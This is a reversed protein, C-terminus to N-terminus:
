QGPALLVRFGVYYDRVDPSSGIRYASRCSSGGNRWGGGRVLRSSGMAPGQPDTLSGGPLRDAWWDLCWEWVNGHMDHVGWPNPLRTGVKQTAYYKDDIKYSVGLPEYTTYSNDWYWCYWGLKAYGPDDGHSFRTTTGGRCAYEWEAETPLRYVYGAPLRGAKSENETLKTCYAVADHWSVQEVPRDLDGTFYAPNSGMTAQYERQTVEYKGIFFGKSLYVRTQPGENDYRGVEDAPSGMTFTGPPIWVLNPRPAPFPPPVVANKTDDVILRARGRTTFQDPWDNWANWAIHKGAGPAVIGADGSLYTVPVNYSAGGDSSMQVTVLVQDSDPDILDYWIDVFFTGPRQSVALNAVRPPVAQAQVPPAVAADVFLIALAPLLPSCLVRM